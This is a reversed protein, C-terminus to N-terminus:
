PWNAVCISLNWMKKSAHPIFFPSWMAMQAFFVALIATDNRETFVYSATTTGIRESKVGSLTFWKTSWESLRISKVSLSIHALSSIWAMGRRFATTETLSKVRRQDASSSTFAANAETGSLNVAFYGIPNERSFTFYLVSM